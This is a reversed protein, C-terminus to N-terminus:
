SGYHAIIVAAVDTDVCTEQQLMGAASSLLVGQQQPECAPAGHSGKVLGADV